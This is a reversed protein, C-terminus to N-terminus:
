KFVNPFLQRFMKLFSFVLTIAVTCFSPPISEAANRLTWTKQRHLLNRRIGEKIVVHVGLEVQVTVRAATDKRKDVLKWCEMPRPGCDTCEPVNPPPAPTPLSPTPPPTPAGTM